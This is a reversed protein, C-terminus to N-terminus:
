TSSVKGAPCFQYSLHQCCQYRVAESVENNSDQFVRLDGSFTMLSRIQQPSRQAPPLALTERLAPLSTESASHFESTFVSEKRKLFKLTLKANSQAM